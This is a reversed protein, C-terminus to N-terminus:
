FGRMCIQIKWITTGIAIMLEATQPKNKLCIVMIPKGTLSNCLDSTKNKTIGCSKLNQMKTRVMIGLVANCVYYTLYM